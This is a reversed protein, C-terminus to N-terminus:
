STTELLSLQEAAAKPAQEHGRECVLYWSMPWQGHPGRDEGPQYLRSALYSWVKAGCTCRDGTTSGSTLHKM